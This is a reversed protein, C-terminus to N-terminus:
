KTKSKEQFSLNHALWNNMSLANNMGGLLREKMMALEETMKEAPTDRVRRAAADITVIFAWLDDESKTAMKKQLTQPDKFILGLGNEPTVYAADIEALIGNKDDTEEM